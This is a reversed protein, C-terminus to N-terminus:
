GDLVEVRELYISELPRSNERLGPNLGLPVEMMRALTDLGEVVEGFVTYAPPLGVEAVTIFFQSGSTNPGANAMAVVGQEYVYGPPPLEDPLRYGPLDGGGGGNPDGAQVIFGPVVRHLATGDYYGQEALFVFSNVTIPAVAPDLELVVDGCSTTMRVRVPAAIGMDAPADFSMSTAVPPQEAGCATPQDRFALYAPAEVPPGADGCAAAIAAAAILSVIPAPRRM